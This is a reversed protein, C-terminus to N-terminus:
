KQFKRAQSISNLLNVYNRFNLFLILGLYALARKEYACLPVSLSVALPFADTKGELLQFCPLSTLSAAGAISDGATTVFLSM